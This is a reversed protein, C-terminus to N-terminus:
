AGGTHVCGEGGGGSVTPLHAQKGGKYSCKTKNLPIDTGENRNICAATTWKRKSSPLTGQLWPDDNKERKFPHKLGQHPKKNVRHRRAYAHGCRRTYTNWLEGFVCTPPPSSLQPIYSKLKSSIM